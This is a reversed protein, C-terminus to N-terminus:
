KSDTKTSKKEASTDASTVVGTSEGERVFSADSFATGNERARRAELTEVDPRAEYNKLADAYGVYAADVVGAEKARKAAEEDVTNNANPALVDEATLGDYSVKEEAMTYNVVKTTQHQETM